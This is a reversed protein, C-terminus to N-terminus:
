KGMRQLHYIATMRFRMALLLIVQEEVMRPRSEHDNGIHSVALETRGDAADEEEEFVSGRCADSLAVEL